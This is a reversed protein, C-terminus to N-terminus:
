LAVKERVNEIFEETMEHLMALEVCPTDIRLDPRSVYLHFVDFQIRRYMDIIKLGM